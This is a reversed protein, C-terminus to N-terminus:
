LVDYVGHGGGVMTTLDFTVSYYSVVTDLEQAFKQSKLLKKMKNSFRTDQDASTGQDFVYVSRLM